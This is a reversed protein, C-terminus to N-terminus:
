NYNDVGRRDEPMEGGEPTWWDPREEMEDTRLM